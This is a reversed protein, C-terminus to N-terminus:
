GERQNHTALDDIQTASLSSQTVAVYLRAKVTRSASEELPPGALPPPYAQILPQSSPQPTDEEQLPTQRLWARARAQKKLVQVGHPM